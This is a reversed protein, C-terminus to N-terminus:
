KSKSGDRSTVDKARKRCDIGFELIPCSAIEKVHFQVTEHKVIFVDDVDDFTCNDLVLHRNM